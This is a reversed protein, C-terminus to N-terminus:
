QNQFLKKFMVTVPIGSLLDSVQLICICNRLGATAYFNRLVLEFSIEPKSTM